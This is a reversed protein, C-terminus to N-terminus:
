DPGFWSVRPVMHAAAGAYGVSINAYSRGPVGGFISLAQNPNSNPIPTPNPDPNPNPNPNTLTLTSNPHPNPLHLAGM